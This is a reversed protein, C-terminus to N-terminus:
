FINLTALYIIIVLALLQIFLNAGILLWAALLDKKYLLNILFLNVALIVSLSIIWLYDQLFNLIGGIAPFAVGIAVPYPAVAVLWIIWALLHLFLALVIFLSVAKERRKLRGWQYFFSRDSEFDLFRVKFM